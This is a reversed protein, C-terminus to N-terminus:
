WRCWGRGDGHAGDGCDSNDDGGDFVVVVAVLVLIGGPVGTM